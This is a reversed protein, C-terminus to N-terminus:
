KRVIKATTIIQGVHRATHEALHFLLGFVTTSLKQRGVSTEEFLTEPATTKLKELAHKIEEVAKETLEEATLDSTEDTESKLFDFQAENLKKETPM